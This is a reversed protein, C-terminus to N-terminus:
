AFMDTSKKKLFDRQFSGTAVLQEDVLELVFKAMEIADLELKPDM